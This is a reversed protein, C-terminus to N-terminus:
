FYRRIECDPLGRGNRMQILYEASECRRTHLQLRDVKEPCSSQHHMQTCLHIQPARVSLSTIEWTEETTPQPRPHGRWVQLVHKSKHLMVRVIRLIESMEVTITQLPVRHQIQRLRCLPGTSNNIPNILNRCCSFLEKNLLPIKNLQMTGRRWSRNSPKSTHLKSPTRPRQELIPRRKDRLPKLKCSLGSQKKDFPQKIYSNSANSSKSPKGQRINRPPSRRLQKPVFRKPGQEPPMLYFREAGGRATAPSGQRVRATPARNFNFLEVSQVSQLTEILIQKKSSGTKPKRCNKAFVRFVVICINETM